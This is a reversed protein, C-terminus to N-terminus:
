IVISINGYYTLGTFASGQSSGLPNGYDAHERNVSGPCQVGGHSVPCLIGSSKVYYLTAGTRYSDIFSETARTSSFVTQVLHVDETPDTTGGM